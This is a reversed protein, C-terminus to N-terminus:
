SLKKVLVVAHAEIAIGRGTGDIGEGSKAKVSIFEPLLNCANALSSQIHPIHPSLKPTELIVTSDINIISFQKEKVKILVEKLLELSSINKYRPDSPPFYYGIDRLGVAGLLADIIAHILVDGDSHAVPGLASEITYGGLVLIRNAALKHRDWGHGIRINTM